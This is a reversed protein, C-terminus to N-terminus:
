SNQEKLLWHGDAQTLHNQVEDNLDSQELCRRRYSIICYLLFPSYESLEDIEWTIIARVGDTNREYQKLTDMSSVKTM